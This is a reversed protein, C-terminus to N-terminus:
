KGLDGLSNPVVVGGTVVMQMAEPSSMDLITIDSMPVVLLFGSSPVPTTPIYVIGYERNADNTFERTLFGVALSGETPFPVSVVTDFSSEQGGSVSLAVQKATVYVRGIFPFKVIGREVTRGVVEAFRHSLLGVLFVVALLIALGIGPIDPGILRDTVPAFISDATGAVFQIILVTVTLPLLVILGRGFIRGM